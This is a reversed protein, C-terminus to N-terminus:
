PRGAGVGSNVALSSCDGIPAILIVALLPPGQVHSDTENPDKVLSTEIGSLYGNSGVSYSPVAM